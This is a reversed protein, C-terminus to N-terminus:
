QLGAADFREHLQRAVSVYSEHDLRGSDIDTNEAEIGFVDKTDEENSICLDVYPILKQCARAAERSWLKKRYNLDCSILVGREKAAQCAELCIQPLEGGLAPLLEPLTFGTPETLIEDWCIQDPRLRSRAERVIM